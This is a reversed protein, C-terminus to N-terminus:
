RKKRWGTWERPPNDQTTGKVVQWGDFELCEPDFYWGEAYDDQAAAKEFWHASAASNQGHAFSEVMITGAIEARLRELEPRKDDLHKGIWIWRDRLRTGDRVLPFWGSGKKEDTHKGARFETMFEAGVKQVRRLEREEPTGPWKTAGAASTTM